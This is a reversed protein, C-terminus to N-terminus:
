PEGFVELLRAQAEPSYRRRTVALRIQSQLAVSQIREEEDGNDIRLKFTLTPVAAFPPVEAGIVEFNLDPM